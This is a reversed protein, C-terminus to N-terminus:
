LDFGLDPQTRLIECVARLGGELASIDADTIYISPEFRLTTVAAPRAPATAHGPV